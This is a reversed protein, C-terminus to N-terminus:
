ANEATHPPPLQWTASIEALYRLKFPVTFYIMQILFFLITDFKFIAIGFGRFFMIKKFHLRKKFKASIKEKNPRVLGPLLPYSSSKLCIAQQLLM